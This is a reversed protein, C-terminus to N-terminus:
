FIVMLGATISLANANIVDDALESLRKQDPSTAFSKSSDSSLSSGLGRSYSGQVIMGVSRTFLIETGLSLGLNAFSAKYQEDGFQYNYGYMSANFDNNKMYQMNAMNYGLNMGIFPRFRETKAIFFKGGIDIGYNKYSIDRGKMGYAGYYFPSWGQNGYYNNAFDETQFSTYNAGVNMSFRDTINSEVRLGLNDARLTEKDGSYTTVGGNLSLKLQEFPKLPGEVPAVEATSVVPAAAAVQVEQVVPAEERANRV